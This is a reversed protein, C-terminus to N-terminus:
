PTKPAAHSTDRRAGATDPTRVAMGTDVPNANAGGTAPPAAATDRHQEASRSCGIAILAAPVVALSLFGRCSM